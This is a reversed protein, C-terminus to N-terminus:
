IMLNKNKQNLDEFVRKKQNLDEFVRKGGTLASRRCSGGFEQVCNGVLKIVTNYPQYTYWHKDAAVSGAFLDEAPIDVPPCPPLFPVLPCIHNYPMTNHMAVHMGSHMASYIRYNM